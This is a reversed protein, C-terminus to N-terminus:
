NRREHRRLFHIPGPIEDDVNSLSIDVRKKRELEVINSIPVKDKENNKQAGYEQKFSSSGLENASEAGGEGEESSEEAENSSETGEDKDSSSEEKEESSSDDGNYNVDGPLLGCMIRDGLHDHLVFAHDYITTAREGNIVCGFMPTEGFSGTTLYAQAQWPDEGIEIDDWYHSGQAAKDECGFGEHLHLGCGNKTHCDQSGTHLLFSEGNPHLGSAYGMYCLGDAINDQFNTLVSVVGTANSSLQYGSSSDESESENENASGSGKDNIGDGDDPSSKSTTTVSESPDTNNSSSEDSSTSMLDRNSSDVLGPMPEIETTLATPSVFDEPAESILGCSVREGFRDYIIFPHGILQNPDDMLNNFGTTVCAAYKGYGSWDTRRYGIPAWPDYPITENNYWTEGQSEIDTCDDGAHIVTACGNTAACDGSRGWPWGGYVSRINPELVAARGVFCVVGDPVNDLGDWQPIFLTTNSVVRSSNGLPTTSAVYYAASMSIDM